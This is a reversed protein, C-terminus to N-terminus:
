AQSPIRQNIPLYHGDKLAISQSPTLLVITGDDAERLSRVEGGELGPAGKYPYVKFEFGDFRALGTETAVWLFGDRTQLLAHVTDQPLGNETNWVRHSMQASLLTASLWIAFTLWIGRM